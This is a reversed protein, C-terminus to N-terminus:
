PEDCFAYSADGGDDRYRQQTAQQLSLQHNPVVGLM